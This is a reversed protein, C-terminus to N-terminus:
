GVWPAYRYLIELYTYLDPCFNLHKLCSILIVANFVQLFFTIVDRVAGYDATTAVRDFINTFTDDDIQIM